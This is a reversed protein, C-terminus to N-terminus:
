HNYNWRPRRLRRRRTKYKRKYGNSYGPTGSLAGYRELLWVDHESLPGGSRANARAGVVESIRNAQVEQAGLITMAVFAVAYWYKRRMVTDKRENQSTIRVRMM